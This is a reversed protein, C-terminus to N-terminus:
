ATRRATATAPSSRSTCKARGFTMWNAKVTGDTMIFGAAPMTTANARPVALAFACSNGYASTIDLTGGDMRYEAVTYHRSIGGGVNIGGGVASSYPVKVTGGSQRFYVNGGNSDQANYGILVTGVNLNGGSMEYICKMDYTCSPNAAHHGLTLFYQDQKTITGGQQEFVGAVTLYYPKSGSGFTLSDGEKFVTKASAGNYMTLGLNASTSGLYPPNVPFIDSWNVTGNSTPRVYVPTGTMIRVMSAWKGAASYLIWKNNASTGSKYYSIQGDYGATAHHQAYQLFNTIGLDATGTISSYINITAGDAINWTQAASTAMPCRLALNGAGTRLIGGAGLTLTSAGGITLAATGTIKLGSFAVDSNVVVAPYTVSSIVGVDGAGPLAGGDWNAASALNTPNSSDGGTFTIEAAFLVSGAAIAAIAFLMKKM